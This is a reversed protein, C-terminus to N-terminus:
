NSPVSRAEETPRPEGHGMLGNSPMKTFPLTLRLARLVPPLSYRGVVLGLLCDWSVVCFGWGRSVLALFWLLGLFWLPRRKQRKGGLINNQKYFVGARGVFCGGEERRSKAAM